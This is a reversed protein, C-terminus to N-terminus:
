SKLTQAHDLDASLQRISKGLVPHVLEPAIERLPALVFERLHLYPHPVSLNEEEIIADNFFLIDIDILREGWKIRRVRGMKREIWHIKELLEFPNLATHVLLAQNLFDPQATIGWAKTRHVSSARVIPGIEQSIWANAQELNAAKDGLNTGTHLYVENM